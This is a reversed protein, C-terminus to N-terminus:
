LLLLRCKYAPPILVSHYFNAFPVHSHMYADEDGKGEGGERGGRGEEGEGGERGRGERGGRGGGEGEGRDERGGM